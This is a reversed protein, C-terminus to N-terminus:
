RRVAGVFARIAAVKMWVVLGAITLITLQRWIWGTGGPDDPGAILPEGVPVLRILPVWAVLELIREDTVTAPNAGILSGPLGMSRVLPPIIRGRVVPDLIEEARAHFPARAPMLVEVAPDALLNRYWHTSAGYGALVWAAGEAVFYGLPTDRRLGSRRGTTTLLLQCGSLPTGLWAALGARHVPVAFWRDLTKFMARSRGSTVGSAASAPPPPLPPFAPPAAPATPAHPAPHVHPEAPAALLPRETTIM